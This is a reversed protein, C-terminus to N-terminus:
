VPHISGHVYLYCYEMVLGVFFDISVGLVLYGQLNAQLPIKSSPAHGVLRYAIQRIHSVAMERQEHNEACNIM